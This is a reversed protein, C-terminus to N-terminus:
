HMLWDATFRALVIKDYPSKEGMEYLCLITGDPLVALDSYAAPGAQLMKEYAWTKADDISLRVTMKERKSSAPNSFLFTPKGEVDPGRVLSGQCMPEILAPDHALASWTLGGDSSTAVARGKAAASKDRYNRMNLMLRGDTLEIVRSENAGPGVLGGISWTKGHDDSYIVHSYGQGDALKYDCPIVLRGSRMQIGAGPGTAYWTWEPKK